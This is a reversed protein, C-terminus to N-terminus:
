DLSRLNFSWPANMLPIGRPEIDCTCNRALPCVRARGATALHARRVRRRAYPLGTDKVRTPRACEVERPTDGFPVWVERQQTVLVRQTARERESERLVGRPGEDQQRGIDATDRNNM